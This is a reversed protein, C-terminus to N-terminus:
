QKQWKMVYHLRLKENGAPLSIGKEIVNKGLFNRLITCNMGSKMIAIETALHSKMLFKM